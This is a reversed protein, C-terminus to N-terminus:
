KKADTSANQEIQSINQQIHQYLVNKRFKHPTRGLIRKFQKIFYSPNAFDAMRALSNISLERDNELIRASSYMKATTIYDSLNSGSENKFVRSLHPATVNLKNALISVNIDAFDELEANDIIARSAEYLKRHKSKM